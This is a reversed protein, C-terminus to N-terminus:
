LKYNKINRKNQNIVLPQQKFSQFHTTKLTIHIAQLGPEATLTLILVPDSGPNFLKWSIFCQLKKLTHIYVCQM